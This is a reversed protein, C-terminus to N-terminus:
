PNAHTSPSPETQPELVQKTAEYVKRAIIEAIRAELSRCVTIKLAGEIM